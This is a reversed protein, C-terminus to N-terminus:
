LFMVRLEMSRRCTFNINETSIKTHDIFNNRYKILMSKYSNYYQDIYSNPKDKINKHYNHQISIYCHIKLNVIMLNTVCYNM